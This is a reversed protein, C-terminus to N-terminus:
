NPENLLILRMAEVYNISNYDQAPQMLIGSLSM